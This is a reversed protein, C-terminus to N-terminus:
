YTHIQGKKANNIIWNTYNSVRTNVGPYYYNACSYGWSTIGVVMDGQYALPGGSDGQCADKGRVNGACLMGTTINPWDYYGPQTRLFAYRDACVKQNVVKIGVHQLQEPSSGGSSLTGWGIVYVLAGDALYYNSGPIRALGVQSSLVAPNQLKVIAVDNVLTKTNFSGHLILASVIHESGGTSAYSTGLRVRWSSPSDGSYCHAASLVSNRTILSGGCAQFWWTGWNGYQMNSM